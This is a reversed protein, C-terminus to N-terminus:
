FHAHNVPNKEGQPCQSEFNLRAPTLCFHHWIRSPLSSFSFHDTQTFIQSTLTDAPWTANVRWESTSSIERGTANRSAVQQLLLKAQTMWISSSKTHRQISVSWPYTMMTPWSDRLQIMKSVNNISSSCCSDQTSSQILFLWVLPTEHCSFPKRFGCSCAFCQLLCHPYIKIIRCSISIFKPASFSIFFVLTGNSKPNQFGNSNTTFTTGRTLISRTSSPTFPKKIPLLPTPSAPSYFFPFRPISYETFYDSTTHWNQASTAFSADWVERALNRFTGVGVEDVCQSGSTLGLVHIGRAIVVHGFTQQHTGHHVVVRVRNPFRFDAEFTQAPM